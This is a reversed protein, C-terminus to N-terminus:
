HGLLICFTVMSQGEGRGISLDENLALRIESKKKETLSGKVDDSEKGHSDDDSDFLKAEKQKLTPDKKKVKILADFFKLDKRFNQGDEEESSSSESDSSDSESDEILGKKKLEELRQIDERKKNYEFRKAYDQNIEIKSNDNDSDSGDFLRLGM